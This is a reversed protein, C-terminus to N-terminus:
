CVNASSLASMTVLHSGTGTAMDLTTVTGTVIWWDTLASVEMCEADTFDGDGEMPGTAMSAAVAEAM